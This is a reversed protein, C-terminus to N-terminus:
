GPIAPPSRCSRRRVHCCGKRRGAGACQWQERATSAIRPNQDEVLGRAREVIFALPDDLLIHRLDSLSARNEDDGVAQGGNAKGVADEREVAAAENLITSVVFQNPRAPAIRRKVPQLTADM